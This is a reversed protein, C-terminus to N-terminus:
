YHDNIHDRDHRNLALAGGDGATYSGLMCSTNDGTHRLGVTHGLEHCALRVRDPGSLRTNFRVVQFFCTRNPDRGASTGDRCSTWGFSNRVYSNAHVCIHVTDPCSNGRLLATNLRTPSYDATMTWRVGDFRWQSLNVAQVTMTNSPLLSVAGTTGNLRYTGMASGFNCAALFVLLLALGSAPMVYKRRL